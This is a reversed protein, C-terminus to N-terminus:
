RQVGEKEQLLASPNALLEAITEVFAALHVGDNLRHDTAVSLPLVPRVVPMGDVAVVAPQIRGFGAIAVEPARIIPTGLWTAYSGFNTITFTGGSMENVLLTQRRAREILTSLAHAIDFVSRHEVNRLVPVILGSEIATAIGINCNQHQIIEEREMDVQANFSPHRSLAIAIAKVFFPLFTLHINLSEIQSRYAERTQQLETADIQRFEVIHPIDRWSATTSRAVTLRMGRLPTRVDAVRDRESRRSADEVVPNGDAPRSVDENLIQGSPGSPSPTPSEANLKGALPGATPASSVADIKPSAWPETVHSIVGHASQTAEIRALTSGVPVTAGVQVLQERLIGSVPAPLEVAAKDTSILVVSQDASVNQGVAVLWELIQAESLGEGVDVLTIDVLAAETM